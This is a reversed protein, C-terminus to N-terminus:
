FIVEPNGSNTTLLSLPEPTNKRIVSVAQVTGILHAIRVVGTRFAALRICAGESTWVICFQNLGQAKALREEAFKASGGASGDVTRTKYVGIERDILSKGNASRSPM